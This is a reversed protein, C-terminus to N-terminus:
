KHENWNRSLWTFDNCITSVIKQIPLVFWKTSVTQDSIELNWAISVLLFYGTIARPGSLQYWKFHWTLWTHNLPTIWGNIIIRFSKKERSGIFFLLSSRGIFIRGIPDIDLHVMWILSIRHSILCRWVFSARKRAFISLIKSFTSFLVLHNAKTEIQLIGCKHLFLFIMLYLKEFSSKHSM